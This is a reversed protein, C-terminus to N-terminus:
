REERIGRLHAGGGFTTLFHGKLWERSGRPDPAWVAVATLRLATGSVRRGTNRLRRGFACGASRGVGGTRPRLAPGMVIM